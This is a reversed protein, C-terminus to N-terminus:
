VRRFPWIPRALHALIGRFTAADKPKVIRKRCTSLGACAATAAAETTAPACNEWKGNAMGVEGEAVCSISYNFSNSLGFGCLTESMFCAKTHCLNM